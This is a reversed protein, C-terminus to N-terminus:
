PLVKYTTSMWFERRAIGAPDYYPTVRHNLIAIIRLQFWELHETGQNFLLAGVFATGIIL